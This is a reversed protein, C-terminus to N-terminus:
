CLSDGPCEVNSSRGPRCGIVAGTRRPWRAVRDEAALSGRVVYDVSLDENITGKGVAQIRNLWAYREDGTEFRPAVYCTLPPKLGHSGDLRGHYQVYILAGDDTRLTERVDLTGTGEPGILIWDGTTRGEMQGRLRDGQVKVSTCDVILRTGAPGVGVEVAPKSELRMTCLPVLEIAM